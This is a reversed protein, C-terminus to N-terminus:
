ESRESLYEEVIDAFGRCDKGEHWYEFTHWNMKGNFAQGYLERDYQSENGHIIAHCRLSCLTSYNEPLEISYNENLYRKNQKYHHHIAVGYSSGCIQCYPFEELYKKRNNIDGIIVMHKRNAM